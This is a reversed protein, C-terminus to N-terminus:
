IDCSQKIERKDWIEYRIDNDVVISKTSFTLLDATSKQSYSKYSM